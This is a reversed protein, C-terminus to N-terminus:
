EEKGDANGIIEGADLQLAGTPCVQFCYGCGICKRTKEALNNKIEIGEYWCAQECRGCGSCLARDPEKLKYARGLTKRRKSAAEEPLSFLKLAEGCLEAINKYGNQDMWSNLRDKLERVAYPGLCCALSGLQVMQSGAMIIKAAAEWDYVGGGAYMPTKIDNNRAEAVVFSIVPLAGSTGYGAGARPLTKKWDLEFAFGRWRATPGISDAGGFVAAEMARLPDCCEVPLKVMVPIKVVRKILKTTNYVVRYFDFVRNRVAAVGPTNFHLELADAGARELERAQRQWEQEWAMGPQVMDTFHGVSAWLKVQGPMKKRAEAVGECYEELTNFFDKIMTGEAHSQIVQGGAHMAQASPYVYSGGGAGHGFNRMVVAGPLAEASKLVAAVGQTAPSSAIVLPNIMDFDKCYLDAM